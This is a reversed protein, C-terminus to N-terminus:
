PITSGCAIQRFESNNELLEQYTGVAVLTGEKMVCIRDCNEVTTLRHAVMLITIKGQLTDIASMFEAETANDLASTAEDLILVSPKTYLARAIGLRQRQGGSLKVGREGVTTNIGEPLSRVFVDLRASKLSLWVQDIDIEDDPLGFAVNHAITDDTLYISQPVYGLQQRWFPLVEVLPEDNLLIKGSSARFLGLILDILSSKGAGSAGVFGISEGSKIKLSFDSIVPPLDDRYRFFVSNLSLEEFSKNIPKKLPLNLEPRDTMSDSDLDSAVLSLGHRSFRFTTTAMLLRNISPMLRFAAAAYLGMVVLLQDMLGQSAMVACLLLMVLVTVLELLVRPTTNYIESISALRRSIIKQERHAAQFFFERQHMIIDKIANIGTYMYKSSLEANKHQRVSLDFIRHKLRWYILVVPLGMGLLSALAATPNVAVVLGLILIVTLSEVFINQASKIAERTKGVSDNLRTSFFAPGREVHYSYERKLYNGYLKDSLELILTGHLQAQYWATLMMVFARVLYICGFVGAGSLVLLTRDEVLIKPLWLALESYEIFLDPRSVIAVFPIIAGVGIMDLIASLFMLVMTIIVYRTAQPGSATIVTRLEKYLSM